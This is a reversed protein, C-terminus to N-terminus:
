PRLYTQSAEKSAVGSSKFSETKAMARWPTRQGLHQDASWIELFTKVSKGKWSSRSKLAVRSSMKLIKIPPFFVKGVFWFLSLVVICAPVIRRQMNTQDGPEESLLDFGKLTGACQM